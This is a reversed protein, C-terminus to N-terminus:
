SEVGGARVRTREESRGVLRGGLRSGGSRGTAQDCCGLGKSEPNGVGSVVDGNGGEVGDRPIEGVPKKRPGLPDGCTGNGERGGDGAAGIAALLWAGVRSAGGCRSSAFPGPSLSARSVPSGGTRAGVKVGVVDADTAPPAPDSCERTERFLRAFSAVSLSSSLPSRLFQRTSPLNGSFRRCGCAAQSIMVLAAVGDLSGGPGLRSCSAWHNRECSHFGSQSTSLVPAAPLCLHATAPKTRSRM